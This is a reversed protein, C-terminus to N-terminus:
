FRQFSVGMSECIPASMWALGSSARRLIRAANRADWPLRAPAAFSSPSDFTLDNYRHTSRSSRQPAMSSCATALPWATIGPGGLFFSRMRPASVSDLPLVFRAALRSPMVSADSSFSSRASSLEADAYALLERITRWRMKANDDPRVCRGARYAALLHLPGGCGNKKHHLLIDYAADINTRPDELQERTVGEWKPDVNPLWHPASNNLQMPGFNHESECELRFRCEHWAIGALIMTDLMPQAISGHAGTEAAFRAMGEIYRRWQEDKDAHPAESRLKKWLVRELTKLDIAPSPAPRAPIVPVPQVSRCCRFGTHYGHWIASHNTISGKCSRNPSAWYGGVQCVGHPGACTVLEETSGLMDYAGVTSVCESYEGSPERQDLERMHEPERGNVKPWNVERWRKHANCKSIPTGTCASRWEGISCMRKGVSMCLDTANLVLGAREDQPHAKASAGVLPLEGVRNPWEFRDICTSRVLVMDDPCAGAAHAAFSLILPAAITAAKKM